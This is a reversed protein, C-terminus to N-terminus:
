LVRVQTLSACSVEYICWKEPFMELIVKEPRTHLKRQGITPKCTPDICTLKPMSVPQTWDRSISWHSLSNWSMDYQFM